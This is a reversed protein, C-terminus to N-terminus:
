LSPHGGAPLPKAYVFINSLYESGTWDGCTILVLRNRVRTQGFLEVARQAVQEKSLKVTKTARYRHTGLTILAGPKVDGLHDFQGGGTHVTHGTVITQGTVSGPKASAKWWGVRQPDAPPDLERDKTMAIQVVPADIGMSKVVLHYPTPKFRKAVPAAAPKPEPAAEPEGHQSWVLLAALLAIVAAIGVVVAITGKRASRHSPASPSQPLTM